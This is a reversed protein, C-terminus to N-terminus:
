VDEGVCPVIQNKAKKRRKERGGEREGEKKGKRKGEKRKKTTSPFSGLAKCISPM